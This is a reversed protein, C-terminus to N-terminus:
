RRKLLLAGELQAGVVSRKLTCKCFVPVKDMTSERAAITNGILM